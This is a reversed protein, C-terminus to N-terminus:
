QGSPGTSRLPRQSAGHGSSVREWCTAGDVDLLVTTHGALAAQVRPSLVSGGGLAIVTRAGASGLLDCVIEEELARFAGEGSREFEQAISHGLREAILHDTDFARVGLARGLEGAASSKGAGMFGILVFAM